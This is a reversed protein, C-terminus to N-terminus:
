GFRGSDIVFKLNRIVFQTIFNFISNWLEYNSIRLEYNLSLMTVSKFRRKSNVLCDDEFWSSSRHMRNRIESQPIRIEIKIRLGCNANRLQFIPFSLISSEGRTGLVRISYGNCWKGFFTIQPIQFSFLKSRIIQM